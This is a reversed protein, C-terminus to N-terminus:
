CKVETRSRREFRPMRMRASVLEWARPQVVGNESAVAHRSEQSGAVETVLQQVVSQLLEGVTAMWVSWRRPLSAASRRRRQSEFGAVATVLQQVVSQLLRRRDSDVCDVKAAFESRCAADAAALV